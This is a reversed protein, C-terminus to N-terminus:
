WKGIPCSVNTLKIKLPMICGCERCTKLATFHECGNCIEYRQEQIEKTTFFSEGDPVTTDLIDEHTNKLIENIEEETLKRVSWTQHWENDRFEPTSEEVMEDEKLDPMQITILPYVSYQALLSENPMKSKKYIVAEPYDLLLQEITYNIPEDNELKIYRM